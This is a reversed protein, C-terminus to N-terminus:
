AIDGNSRKHSRLLANHCGGKQMNGSKGTRKLNHKWCGSARKLM